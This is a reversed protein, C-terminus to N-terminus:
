AGAAPSTDRALLQDIGLNWGLLHEALTLLGILAIVGACLRRLTTLRRDPSPTQLLWLALGALIFAVATNAKMSAAGPVISQLVPLNLWWGALVLAGAVATAIAATKSLARAFAVNRPSLALTMPSRRNLHPPSPGGGRM